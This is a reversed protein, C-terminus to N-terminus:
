QYEITFNVQYLSSKVIKELQIEGLTKWIRFFIGM